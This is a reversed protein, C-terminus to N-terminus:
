FTGLVRGKGPKLGLDAVSDEALPGVSTPVGGPVTERAVAYAEDSDNVGAAVIRRRMNQGIGADPGTVLMMWGKMPDEGNKQGSLIARAFAAGVMRGGSQKGAAVQNDPWYKISAFM